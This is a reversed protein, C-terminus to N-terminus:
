TVNTNWNGTGKSADIVNERKDRERERKIKTGLENIPSSIRLGDRRTPM